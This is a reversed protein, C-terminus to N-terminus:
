IDITGQYVTEAPGTMLVPHETGGWQIKLDGGRLNVNVESELLGLQIGCVTAACAGTGCALTEGVGREFVRLRIHQKDIIEMFGINAGEPFAAHTTLAAGIGVVDAATTNEVQLVAHPNGMNVAAFAHQDISYQGNESTLTTPIDAATFKPAGMDVTVTNDPNGILQLLGAGTEVTVNTKDTLGQEVVYRLFCRSGNGCANVESGDANIIRYNFDIDPSQHAGVLLIQDCGIGFRRDALAAAQSPTLELPNDITNIVIFDNGCGHMKTFNLRM